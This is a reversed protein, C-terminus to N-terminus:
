AVAGRRGATAVEAGRRIAGQWARMRGTVPGRGDVSLGGGALHLRLEREDHRHGIRQIGLKTGNGPSHFRM